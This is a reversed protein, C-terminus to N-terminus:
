IIHFKYYNRTMQKYINKKNSCHKKFTPLKKVMDATTLGHVQSIELPFSNNNFVFYYKRMGNHFM